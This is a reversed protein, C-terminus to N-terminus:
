EDSREESLMDSEPEHVFGCHECPRQHLDHPCHLSYWPQGCKKCIRPYHYLGEADDIVLECDCM